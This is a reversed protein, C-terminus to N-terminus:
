PSRGAWSCVGSSEKELVQSQLLSEEFTIHVDKGTLYPCLVMMRIARARQKGRASCVGVARTVVHVPLESCDPARM